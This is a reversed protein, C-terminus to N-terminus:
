KGKQKDYLSKWKLAAQRMKSCKAVAAEAKKNAAELEEKLKKLAEDNGGVKGGANKAADREAHAKKIAAAAKLKLQKLQACTVHVRARPWLYGFYPLSASMILPTAIFWGLFIIVCPM